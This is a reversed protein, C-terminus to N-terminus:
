VFVVVVWIQPLLMGLACELKRGGEYRSLEPCNWKAAGKAACQFHNTRMASCQVHLMECEATDQRCTASRELLCCCTNLSRPSPIVGDSNTSSQSNGQFRDLCM